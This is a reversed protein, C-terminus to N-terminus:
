RSKKRRAQSSQRSNSFCLSVISKICRCLFTIRRGRVEVLALDLLEMNKSAFVFAKRLAKCVPAVKDVQMERKAKAWADRQKTLSKQYILLTKLAEQIQEDVFNEAAAKDLAKITSATVTPAGGGRSRGGASKEPSKVMNKVFKVLVYYEARFKYIQRPDCVLCMWEEANSINALFKRGLNRQICRKCFAKPCGDCCLLEGGNACWRCFKDSGDEETEWDGDGYFLRCYRCVAVGLLPHRLLNSGQLNTIQRHCATCETKRSAVAEPKPGLDTYWELEEQSLSSFYDDDKPDLEYCPPPAKEEEEKKDDKDGDAKSEEKEVEEKKDKDGKDVKDQFLDDFKDGAASTKEEKNEAESGGPEEVEEPDEKPADLGEAEEEIKDLEEQEEKDEVRNPEREQEQEQEKEDHHLHGNVQQAEEEQQVEVTAEEKADEEQRVVKDVEVQVAAAEGEEEMRQVEINALDDFENESM